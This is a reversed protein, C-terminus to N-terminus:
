DPTDPGYFGRVREYEEDMQQEAKREEEIEWDADTM